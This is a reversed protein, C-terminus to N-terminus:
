QHLDDESGKLSKFSLFLATDQPQIHTPYSRGKRTRTAASNNDKRTHM